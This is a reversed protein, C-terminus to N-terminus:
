KMPPFQRQGTMMLSPVGSGLVTSSSGMGPLRAHQTQQPVDETHEETSTQVTGDANRVTTVKKTIRRGNIIQTTTQVTRSPGSGGTTTASGFSGFTDFSGFPDGFASRGFDDNFGGFHHDFLSRRTNNFGRQGQQPESRQGTGQQQPRSFMPQGFGPFGASRGFGFDDSFFDAFPDRGGFFMRFLEHPNVHARSRPGAAGSAGSPATNLPDGGADYIRRKQPDSLVEYAEAIEKFKAEAEEKNDPNKDPHWRVAMRRYARKIDDEDATRTVGLVDYYNPPM